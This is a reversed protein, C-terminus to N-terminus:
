GRSRHFMESIQVVVKVKSSGLRQSWEITNTVTETTLKAVNVSRLTFRSLHKNVQVSHRSAAAAFKIHLRTISPESGDAVPHFSCYQWSSGCMLM